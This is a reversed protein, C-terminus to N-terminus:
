LCKNVATQIAAIGYLAATECRLINVPFHIPIFGNQILVNVETNSIGGESGVVIAIKGFKKNTEYLKIAHNNSEDKRECLVFGLKEKEEKNWIQIAQELTLCELIRTEIPSGSQQRAEKVIKELRQAKSGQLAFLSNKESYEGIIPVINKIGCETAQRVIQEFKTAKPIFQFLWYECEFLENEIQNAQVGRTIANNLCLSSDGQNVYDGVNLFIKREKFDLRSVTSSYLKTKYRLYIMDGVKVRLVQKLYKYDSGQIIVENCPEKELILQRM